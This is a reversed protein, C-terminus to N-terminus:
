AHETEAKAAAIFATLDDSMLLPVFRVIKERPWDWWAIAELEAITADDFRKRIVRAPNGGVIAYAPVDKTVVANRAIVAGNGITVGSLIAAQSAVWVDHGIHVDGNSAACDMAPLEPWRNSHTFPYTTVWDMHHNGGLMVEVGGAFSCYRGITLKHGSNAFRLKPAGYSHEGVEAQGKRVAKRLHLRTLDLPNRWRQWQKKLGM